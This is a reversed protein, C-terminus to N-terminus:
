TFYMLSGVMWSVDFCRKRESRIHVILFWFHSIIQIFTIRRHMMRCCCGDSFLSMVLNLFFWKPLYLPSAPFSLLVAPLSIPPCSSLLPFIEVVVILDWRWTHIVFAESFVMLSCCSHAAFYKLLRRRLDFVLQM